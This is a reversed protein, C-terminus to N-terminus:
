SSHGHELGQILEVVQVQAGSIKQNNAKHICQLADAQKLQQIGQDKEMQCTGIWNELNTLEQQLHNLHYKHGRYCRVEVQVTQDKLAKIGLDV